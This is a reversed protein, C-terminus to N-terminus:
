PDLVSLASTAINFIGKTTTVNCVMMAEVATQPVDEVLGRRM